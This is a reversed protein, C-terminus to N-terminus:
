ITSSSRVSMAGKTVASPTTIRDLEHATLAFFGPQDLGDSFDSADLGGVGEQCGPQRSQAICVVHNRIVAAHGVRTESGNQCNSQGM